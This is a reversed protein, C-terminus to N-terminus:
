FGATLAWITEAFIFGIGFAVIATGAFLVGYAAWTAIPYWWKDPTPPNPAGFSPYPGGM